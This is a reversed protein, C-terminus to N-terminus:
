TTCGPSAAATTAVPQATYDPNAMRFLRHMFHQMRVAREAERLARAQGVWADALSAGSVRNIRCIVSSITGCHRPPATDNGRIM